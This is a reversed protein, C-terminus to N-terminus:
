GSAWVLRCRMRVGFSCSSKCLWYFGGVIERGIPGWWLAGVDAASHCEPYRKKFEGIIYASWLTIGAVTLLLIVGPVIGVTDFV